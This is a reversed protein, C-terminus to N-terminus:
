EGGTCGGGEEAGGMKQARMKAIPTGEMQMAVAAARRVAVTPLGGSPSWKQWQKGGGHLLPNSRLWRM